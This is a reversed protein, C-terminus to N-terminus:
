EASGLPRIECGRYEHFWYCYYYRGDPGLYLRHKQGDIQVFIPTAELYSYVVDIPLEQINIENM